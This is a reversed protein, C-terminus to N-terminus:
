FFFTQILFTDIFLQSLSNLMYTHKKKLFLFLNVPQLYNFIQEANVSQFLFVNQVETKGAARWPLRASLRTAAYTRSADRQAAAGRM